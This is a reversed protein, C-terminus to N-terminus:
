NRTVRELTPFGAESVPIMHEREEHIAEATSLIMEDMEILETKRRSPLGLAEYVAARAPYLLGVLWDFYGIATLDGPRAFSYRAVYRRAIPATVMVITLRDRDTLRSPMRSM